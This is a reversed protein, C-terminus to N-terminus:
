NSVEQAKSANASREIRNIIEQTLHDYDQHAHSGHAYEVIPMRAASSEVLTATHRIITDLALGQFDEQIKELVDKNVNARHITALAYVQLGPNSEEMVDNVIAM